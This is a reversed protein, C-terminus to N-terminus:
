IQCFGHSNKGEKDEIIEIFIKEEGEERLPWFADDDDKGHRFLFQKAAFIQMKVSADDIKRCRLRFGRRWFGDNGCIRAFINGYLKVPCLM